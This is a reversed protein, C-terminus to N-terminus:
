EVHLAGDSFAIWNSDPASGPRHEHATHVARGHHPGTPNEIWFPAWEGAGRIFNFAREVPWSVPIIRDDPTPRGQYRSESAPQPQRALNYPSHLHEILLDVASQAMLADTEPGSIGPPLTVAAQDLLDGTDIGADMFHVSAGTRTEGAQFQWFLPHPGRYAPLLSPHLNLCGLAPVQLWTEPLIHPFCAVILLDPDLIAFSELGEPRRLSGTPFIPIEFQAALDHLSLLQQEPHLQLALDAVPAARAPALDALPHPMMLGVMDFGAELLTRLPVRGFAGGMSMYVIRLGSSM